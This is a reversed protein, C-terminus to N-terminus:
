NNMNYPSEVEKAGAIFAITLILDLLCRIEVAAM